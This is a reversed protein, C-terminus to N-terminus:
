STAERGVGAGVSSEVVDLLRFSSVLTDRMAEVVIVQGQRSDELAEITGVLGAGLGAGSEAEGNHRLKHAGMPARDGSGITRVAAGLDPESQLAQQDAAIALPGTALAYCDDRSIDTCCVALRWGCAVGTSVLGGPARQM